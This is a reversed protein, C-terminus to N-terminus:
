ENGIEKIVSVPILFYGGPTVDILKHNNDAEALIVYAMNRLRDVTGTILLDPKGNKDLDSVDWKRNESSDSSAIVAYRFSDLAPFWKRRFAIADDDSKIQEISQAFVINTLSILITLCTFKM